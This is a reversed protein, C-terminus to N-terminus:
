KSNTNALRSMSTCLTGICQGVPGVRSAGALAKEKPGIEFQFVQSRLGKNLLIFKYVGDGSITFIATM